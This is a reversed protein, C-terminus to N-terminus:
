ILDCEVLIQLISICEYIYAYSYNNYYKFNNNNKNFKSASDEDFWIILTQIIKIKDLLEVLKIIGEPNYNATDIYKTTNQWKKWQKLSDKYRNTTRRLLRRRTGRNLKSVEGFLMAEMLINMLDIDGNDINEIKERWL